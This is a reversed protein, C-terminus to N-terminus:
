VDAGKAKKTREKKPIPLENKKFRAPLFLMLGFFVVLMLIKIFM